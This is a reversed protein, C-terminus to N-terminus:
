SAAAAAAAPTAVPAAAPPVDVAVIRENGWVARTRLAACMAAEGAAMAEAGREAMTSPGVFPLGRLQLRACGRLRPEAGGRAGLFRVHWGRLTALGQTLLDVSLVREDPGCSALGLLDGAGGDVHVRGNLTVPQMFGPIACSAAVVAHVPGSTHTVVTRSWLDYTSIAVRCRGDELRAIPTSRELFQQNIRFFGAGLQGRWFPTLIDSPKISLLLTPLTSSPCLGAVLSTLIVYLLPAALTRRV